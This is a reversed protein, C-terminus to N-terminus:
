NQNKYATSNCNIVGQIIIQLSSVTAKSRLQAAHRGDLANM